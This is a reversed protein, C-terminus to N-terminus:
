VLGETVPDIGAVHESATLPGWDCGCGQIGLVIVPSIKLYDWLLSAGTTQFTGQSIRVHLWFSQARQVVGNTKFRPQM